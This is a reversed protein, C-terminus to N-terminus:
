SPELWIKLRHTENAALHLGATGGAAGGVAGLLFGSRAEDTQAGFLQMSAKFQQPYAKLCAVVDFGDVRVDCDECRVRLRRALEMWDTM